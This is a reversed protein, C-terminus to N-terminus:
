FCFLSRDTTSGHGRLRRLEAPQRRRNRCHDGRVGGSLEQSHKWALADRASYSSKAFNREGGHDGRRDHSGKCSGVLDIHVFSDLGVTAASSSRTAASSCPRAATAVALTAAVALTKLKFM